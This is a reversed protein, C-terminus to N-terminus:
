NRGREERILETFTRKMIKNGFIEKQIAAFDPYHILKPADPVIRGIVKKRKRLVVTEGRKLRAEVDPFHQRLDRVTFDKMHFMITECEPRTLPEGALTIALCTENGTYIQLPRAESPGV